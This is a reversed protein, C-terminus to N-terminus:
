KLVQVLNNFDDTWLRWDERVEVETAAETLSPHDLSERRDSLLLWDSRSALSDEGEDAIHIMFLGHLRALGEVVPVLNLFRNTVHFAIIGGPKMHRRYVAVAESTILHVPIADSSFADIALVDFQQPPERELSLRADGLVLEITADSDQLYTFDRQAIRMVSPNIDYFRYVDGIAGYVALTGTGLGIVGVKVPKMSPHLAELARGIGSTTTYYTTARRRFEPEMYQTGHLITGHILSRRHNANDRGYEQVRLVGYFNRSAVITDDYFQVIAWVACGATALVAAAALAGFIIHGRRVQWLLLLATVVLGGALEFYAPLVLPAVIGVLASGLAGGLSIMLYFRTLYEPAPKLTVLEGHCFMCALFLGGCFVGIQLALEHTLKSDALTWAMVCLGAALMALMAARRYWGKGDFCLIFTLLYIALPAIWLLPVAAINQTIHNSVALLLMSGTAALTCWLAQRPLTPSPEFAADADKPASPGSRSARQEGLRRVSSWGAATCLGVFLVYGASWGWAQARTPAWPEFLFPYGVLALMSALNSLAFLRYPSAGPRARAYWVQVLPSTTSLLFYPLGITAALLGLIQWSPSQAGTPKWYASPIIPLVAISALLLLTHLKLQTRAALRRVVFDSYAYGALLAAQFFVLCTTWVAASGGFWPLIQKAVVPQVLFLLFASVFITVAYLPM